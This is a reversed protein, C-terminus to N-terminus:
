AAGPWWIQVVNGAAGPKNEIVVPKGLREALKQGVLRAAVDSAGGAPYGVIIRVPQTPWTQAHAGIASLAMVVPISLRSLFTRLM